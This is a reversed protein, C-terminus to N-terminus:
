LLAGIAMVDFVLLPFLAKGFFLFPGILIVLAGVVLSVNVILPWLNGKDEKEQESMKSLFEKPSFDGEVRGEGKPKSFDFGCFTCKSLSLIVLHQCSPCTRHTENPETM